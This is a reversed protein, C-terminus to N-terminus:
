PTGSPLLALSSPGVETWWGKVGGSFFDGVKSWFGPREPASETAKKVLTTATHGASKANSRATELNERAASRDAEGPDHLTPRRHRHARQAPRNPRRGADGTRPAPGGAEQPPESAWGVVDATLRRGQDRGRPLFRGDRRDQM